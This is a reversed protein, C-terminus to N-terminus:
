RPARGARSPGPTSTRVGRRRRTSPQPTPRGAGPGELLRQRLTKSAVFLYAERVLQEVLKWDPAGDLVVGVWGSPGVYAPRFFRAPDLAILDQQVGPPQPLWVALHAAGHHHDDLMAFVKGRGAFWTPEGHSLRENAEPYSLCVQRLREVQRASM